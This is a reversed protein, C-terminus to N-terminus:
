QDLSISLKLKKSFPRLSTEGSYKAYSQELLIGRMNCETSQGFKMVQNGQRKKPLYQAIHTDHNKTLEFPSFSGPPM